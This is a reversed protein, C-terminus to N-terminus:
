SLLIVAINNNIVPRHYASLIIPAAAVARLDVIGVLDHAALAPTNKTARVSRDQFM